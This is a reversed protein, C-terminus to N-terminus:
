QIKQNKSNIYFLTSVLIVTSLFQSVLKAWASGILGFHLIFFYSFSVTLIASALNTLLYHKELHKVLLVQELIRNSLFFVLVFGLIQALKIAPIFENGYALKIVYPSFFIIALSFIGTIFGSFVVVKLISSKDNQKSLAPLASMSIPNALVGIAGTVMSFAAAFYGLDTTSLMKGVILGDAKAAVMGFFAAIGLPLSTHILQIKQPTSLLKSPKTIFSKAFYWISFLSIAMGIIQGIFVSVLKPSILIFIIGFLVPVFSNVFDYTALYRMKEKAQLLIVYPNRLAALIFLIVALWILQKNQLNPNLALFIAPIVLLTSLAILFNFRQYFRYQKNALKHERSIQRILVLGIGIDPLSNFIMTFTLFYSFQGYINAGLLRAVIINWVFYTAKNGIAALALYSSNKGIKKLM